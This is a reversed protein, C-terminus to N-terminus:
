ISVLYVMQQSKETNVYVFGKTFYGALWCMTILHNIRTIDSVWIYKHVEKKRFHTDYNYAEERWVGQAIKRGQQKHKSSGMSM